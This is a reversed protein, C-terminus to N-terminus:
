AGKRGPATNKALATNFYVRMGSAHLCCAPLEFCNSSEHCPEGKISPATFNNLNEVFMFKKVIFTLCVSCQNEPNLFVAKLLFAIM